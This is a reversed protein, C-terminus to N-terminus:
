TVLDKKLIEHDTGSTPQYGRETLLNTLYDTMDRGAIELRNIAHTIPFGEYILVTTTIGNGSNLALGTTHGSAYMSLVPEVAVYFAPTNFTEFMVQAMNERKERPDLLTESLLVPHEEPYVNLEKYFIHHWIKEMDDWGTVIGRQMPYKIALLGRM